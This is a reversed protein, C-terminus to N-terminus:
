MTFVSLDHWYNTQKNLIINLLINMWVQAATKWVSATNRQRQATQRNADDVKWLDQFDTLTKKLRQGGAVRSTSRAESRSNLLFGDTSPQVVKNQKWCISKSLTLKSLQRVLDLPTNIQEAKKRALTARLYLFTNPKKKRERFQHKETLFFLHTKCLRDYPKNPFTSRSFDNSNGTKNANSMVINKGSYFRLDRHKSHVNSYECSLGPLPSILELATHSFIGHCM